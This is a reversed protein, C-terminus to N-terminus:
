WKEIQSAKKSSPFGGISFAAEEGIYKDHNFLIKAQFENSPQHGELLPIFLMMYGNPYAKPSGDYLKKFLESTESARSQEASIFIM